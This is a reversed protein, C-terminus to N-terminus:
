RVWLRKYIRGSMDVHLELPEGSNSTTLVEFHHKRREISRATGYGALRIIDAAQAETTVQIPVRKKDHDADEIEWIRGYLDLSAIVDRGDADRAPIEIHRKKREAGGVQVLGQAKLVAQTQAAAVDSSIWGAIAANGPMPGPPAVAVSAAFFVTEGNERTIRSADIIKQQVAGTVIVTEGQTVRVSGATEGRPEVLFRGADTEIVIKSGFDDTVKGRFTSGGGPAPQAFAVSITVVIVIAASTLGILIAMRRSMQLNSAMLRQQSSGMVRPIRLYRSM